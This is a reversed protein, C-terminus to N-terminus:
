DVFIFGYKLGQAILSDMFESADGVHFKVIRAADMERLNRRATETFLPELDCTTLFRGCGPSDLIGKAIISTSLGNYTGLELVEGNTFYALEYLKLAETHALYGDLGLDICVPIGQRGGPAAAINAHRENIYDGPFDFTKSYPKLPGTDALALWTDPHTLVGM